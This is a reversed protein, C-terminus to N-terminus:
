YFLLQKFCESFLGRNMWLYRLGDATEFIEMRNGLTATGATYPQMGAPHLISTTVDLYYTRLTAEKSIYIRDQGDYAYYSGTTFTELQPTTSMMDWSDNSFNWKDWFATAGARPKIVVSGRKTLDTTGWLWNYEFGTGQVPLEIISYFTGNVHSSGAVTLVTTTSATIALELYQGTGSVFKVRRNVFSSAPWFTGTVTAASLATFPVASCYFHQDDIISTVYVPTTLTAGGNVFAGTGGTVALYMGVQLGKLNGGTTTVYNGSSSCTTAVSTFLKSNDVVSTGSQTGMCLGDGYQPTIQGNNITGINARQAMVQPITIVYRSNGQSPATAAAINFFLTNRTNGMIYASMQASIGTAQAVVVTNYTVISGVFQGPVWNASADMLLNTAQATITINASGAGVNYTFQNAAPVTLITASINNLAAGAGTDGSVTVTQGVKFNHNNVTTITMNPNSYTGTSVAHPPDNGLRAMVGGVNGWARVRSSTLTDAALNIVFTQASAAAGFFMKDPDGQIEYTSTADPITTWDPAVVLVTPYNGIISRVQGKGTGSTIRVALGNWRNTTWSKSTDVLCAVGSAFASATSIAPQQNQM